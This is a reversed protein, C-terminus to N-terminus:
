GAHQEVQSDIRKLIKQFSKPTPSILCWLKLPKNELYFENEIVLHPCERQKSSYLIRRINTQQPDKMVLPLSHHTVLGCIKYFSRTYLGILVNGMEALADMMQERYAADDAHDNGNIQMWEPKDHELLTM